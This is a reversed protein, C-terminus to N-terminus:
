TMDFHWPALDALRIGELLITDGTGDHWFVDAGRQHADARFAALGIAEGDSGLIRLMDSHGPMGADFGRITDSGSNGAFVFVDEGRHGALLDDGWEGFLWDDAAGGFLTDDGAGGFLRDNMLNGALRDDGPGGFLRDHGKHGFLRDDGDEGELRDRGWGGALTDAGSGGFARDGIGGTFLRDDGGGGELRDAGRKGRMVNDGDNGVLREAGNGGTLRLDGAGLLEVHRVGSVIEADVSVALRGGDVIDLKANGESLDLRVRGRGDDLAVGIEAWGGGAGLNLAYGGASWTQAFGGGGTVTVGGQGEGASFAGDGDRDRYAVGTVFVDHGSLAFNETLMTSNWSVGDKRFEGEVMAVGVEALAPHMMNVRHGESEFLNRHQHPANQVPDVSGTSSKYSINEAMGWRDAFAYGADEMRDKPTSGGRGTHSFSDAELMWRSHGRAAELLDRDPALAPKPAASITGPDLGENLSIGYREAEGLPDLRARNIYELILQEADTLPM